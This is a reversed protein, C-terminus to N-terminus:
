KTAKVSKITEGTGNPPPLPRENRGNQAENTTFAAKCARCHYLDAGIVDVWGRVGCHQCEDLPRAPWTKLVDAVIERDKKPLYAGTKTPDATVAYVHKLANIAKLLHKEREVVSRWADRERQLSQALGIERNSLERRLDLLASCPRNLSGHAARGPRKQIRRKSKLISMTAM